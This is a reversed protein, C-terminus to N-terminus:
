PLRPPHSLRDFFADTGQAEHNEHQEGWEGIRHDGAERRQALYEIGFLQDECYFHLLEVGLFWPNDELDFVV